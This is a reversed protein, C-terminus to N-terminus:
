QRDSSQYTNDYSYDYTHYEILHTETGSRARNEILGSGFCFRYFSIFHKFDFLFKDRHFGIEFFLHGHATGFHLRGLRFGALALHLEVLLLLLQLTFLGFNFRNAGTQSRLDVHDFLFFRFQLPQMFGLHFFEFMNRTQRGFFCFVTKYLRQFLLGLRLGCRIDVINHVFGAHRCVFFGFADNDLRNLPYRGLGSDFVRYRHEMDIGIFDFPTNDTPFTTVYTSEFRSGTDLNDDIICGLGNYQRTEIGHTAFYRTQSQMLEYGVSSNVRGTDLFDNCFHTFLDLLFNDLSSFTGSDIKTNM